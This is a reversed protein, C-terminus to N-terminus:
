AEGLIYKRRMKLFPAEVFRFSLYGVPVMLLFSLAAAVMAVYFNDLGVIRKDVFKSMEFVVFFHLLYISYSYNGVTALFKSFWSEKQAVSSDYWGIMVAYAAGEIAPMVIWLPRDSPYTPFWYLGGMMDFWWYFLCFAALAGIFLYHRGRLLDRAQFALMGLMFQDIRGVITWYSLTQMEGLQMYLLTRVAIMALVAFALSYKWRRTLYLLLPLLLYFHFETTISWGGNPLVPMVFGTAMVKIYHLDEGGRFHHVFGAGVIVLLLLPLLRLARNRVFALYDIRKGDLLKAFLYGSLVMFLAVGTHGEDFLSLPFVLPAGEFAVPYGDEGHTFHWVFVLFAAVARVHDLAVFYQGTSSKM